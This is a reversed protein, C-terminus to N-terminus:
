FDTAFTTFLAVPAASAFLRFGLSVLPNNWSHPKSMLRFGM